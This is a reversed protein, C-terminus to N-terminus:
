HSSANAFRSDGTDAVQRLGKVLQRAAVFARPRLRDQRVGAAVERCLYEGLEILEDANEVLGGQTALADMAGRLGSLENGALEAPWLIQGAPTVVPPNARRSTFRSSRQAQHEARRRASAEAQTAEYQAKLSCRAEHRAMDNQLNLSRAQEAVLRAHAYDRAGARLGEYAAGLGRLYAETVTSSHHPAVRVSTREDNYSRVDTDNAYQAWSIAPVATLVAAASIVLRGIM